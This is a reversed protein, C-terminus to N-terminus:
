SDAHLDAVRLDRHLAVARPSPRYPPRGTPNLGRSVIAPVVRPGFLAGGAVATAISAALRRRRIARVRAISPLVRRRSPRRRGWRRTRGPGRRPVPTVARGTRTRDARLRAPGGGGRAGRGGAPPAGRAGRRRAAPVGQPAQAGRALRRDPRAASGPVARVPDRWAAPGLPVTGRAGADPRM